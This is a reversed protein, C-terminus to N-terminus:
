PARSASSAAFGLRRRLAAAVVSTSLLTVAGLFVLGGAWQVTCGRRDGGAHYYAGCASQPTISDHMYGLVFPGAFGGINGLSNVLAISCGKIASPQPQSNHLSWFIPIAIQCLVDAAAVVSVQVAATASGGGGGSARMGLGALMMLGSALAYLGWAAKFRRTAGGADAWQGVPPSLTVKLTAPIAFILGLKAPDMRPYVEKLLTPLFFRACNAIISSTFYQASFLLCPTHQIVARVTQALGLPSHAGSDSSPKGTGTGTGTGTAEQRLPPSPAPSPAPSPSAALSPASEPSAAPAAGKGQANVGGGVHRHRCDARPRDKSWHLAAVLTRGEEETLWPAESPTEVLLMPAILGLAVTPIGEVALLWRWGRIGLKGDLVSLLLGSGASSLLGGISAASSFYAIARGSCSDPFWRTLYLLCGPFFASEALGLCFRLVLLQHESTVFATATASLGWLVMSAPLVRTAGLKPIFHNAPVQMTAYSLFFIGSALGFARASLSLDTSMQLQAYALNTRDIINLVYSLWLLPIVYICIKKFLAEPLHPPGDVIHSAALLPSRGDEDASSPSEEDGDGLM